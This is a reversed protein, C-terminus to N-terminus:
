LKLQLTTKRNWLKITGFKLVSLSKTKIDNENGERCNQM